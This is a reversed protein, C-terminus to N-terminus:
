WLHVIMKCMFHVEKWIGNGKQEFDSDSMVDFLTAATCKAAILKAASQM